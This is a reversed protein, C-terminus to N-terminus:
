FTCASDQLVSTELKEKNLRLVGAFNGFNMGTRFVPTINLKEHPPVFCSYIQLLPAAM